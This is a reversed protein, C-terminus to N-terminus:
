GRNNTPITPDAQMKGRFWSAIGLIPSAVGVLAAMAGLMAPLYALADPKVGFFMVGVYAIGVVLVSLVLDVAVALGIAPRWSYTPWHESADEAQMTKNVDGATQVSAAMEASAQQVVLAQLKVREDSEIQQLKVAADPNTTLAQQVASPTNEVGLASAIMTGISAGPTGALLGGLMPAYKGVSSAIDKWDM